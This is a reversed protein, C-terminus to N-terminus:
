SEPHIDSASQTTLPMEGKQNQTIKNSYIIAQCLLQNKENLPSKIPCYMDYSIHM